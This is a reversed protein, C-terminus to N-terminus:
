LPTEARELQEVLDLLWNRILVIHRGHIYLVILRLFNREKARVIHNEVFCCPIHLSETELHGGRQLLVLFHRGDREFVCAKLSDYNLQVSTRHKLALKLVRLTHLADAELVSKPDNSLLYM